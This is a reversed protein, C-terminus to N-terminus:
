VFPKSRIKEPIGWAKLLWTACSQHLSRRTTLPFLGVNNDVIDVFLMVPNESLSIVNHDRTFHMRRLVGKLILHSSLCHLGQQSYQSQVTSSDSSQPRKSGSSSTGMSHDNSYQDSLDALLEQTSPGARCNQIIKYLRM